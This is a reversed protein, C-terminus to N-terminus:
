PFASMQELVRIDRQGSPFLSDAALALMAVGILTLGLFIGLLMMSNKEEVASSLTTRGSREVVSSSSMQDEKTRLESQRLWQSASPLPSPRLSRRLDPHDLIEDSTV